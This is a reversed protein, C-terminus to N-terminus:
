GPARAAPEARCLAGARRRCSTSCSQSSKVCSAGCWHMDGNARRGPLSARLQIDGRNFKLETIVALADQANVRAAFGLLSFLAALIISSRLNKM